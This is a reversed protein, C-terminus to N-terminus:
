CRGAREEQIKRYWAEAERIDNETVQSRSEVANSIVYFGDICTKVIDLYEKPAGEDKLIDMFQHLAYSTSKNREFIVEIFRLLQEKSMDTM